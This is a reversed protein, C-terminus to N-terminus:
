PKVGEAKAIAAVLLSFVRDSKTGTGTRFVYTRFYDEAQKAAELLSEREQWLRDVLNQDLAHLAVPSKTM